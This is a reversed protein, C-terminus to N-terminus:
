CKWHPPADWAPRAAEAEAEARTLGIDRLQHDDLLALRGRSRALAAGSLLRRWIARLSTPRYKTLTQIRETM